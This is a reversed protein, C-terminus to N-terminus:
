PESRRNGDTREDDGNRPAPEYREYPPEPLAPLGALGATGEGQDPLQPRHREPLAAATQSSRRGGTTSPETHVANIARHGLAASRDRATQLREGRSRMRRASFRRSLREAAYGVSGTQWLLVVPTVAALVPIVIALLWRGLGGLSLTVAQGLLGGLRFLGAIPIPMVLFPVYFRAVGTAFRSVLRLPGVGPIWAIIVLPMLLVYVFLALQRVLYILGLVGFLFLDMALSLVVGLLGVAGFSLTQFLSVTELSPALLQAIGDVLQLSLVAIWWWSLIGLLGAMARRKLRARHYSSFLHSTSELLIVLGVAGGWLTLAVPMLQGWYYAYIETWPATRPAQFVVTPHPTFVLLRVLGGITDGIFGQIPTVLEHLLTKLASVVADAIAGPSPSSGSGGSGTPTPTPQAASLGVALLALGPGLGLAFLIRQLRAQSRLIRRAISPSADRLLRTRQIPERLRARLRAFGDRRM